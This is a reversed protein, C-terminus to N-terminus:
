NRASISISLITPASTEDSIPMRAFSSARAGSAHASKSVPGTNPSPTWDLREAVRIRVSVLVRLQARDDRLRRLPDQKLYLQDWHHPGEEGSDREYEYGIRNGFPDETRHAELRLCQTRDSPDAIAAPDTGLSAQTGYLSELGDKSRVEWYSNTADHHELDARVVGRHAPPLVAPLRRRCTESRFSIRRGPCSSSMRRPTTTIRPVGKSTKRSVGPISLNWGLGFPGNGNGTSYVLNLQPQFGNRGPPLAIPITFNGTGTHLDPSFKEGIGSLAGGGKPLSIINSTGSNGDM